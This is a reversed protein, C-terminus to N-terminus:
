GLGFRVRLWPWFRRRLTGELALATISAALAVGALLAPQSPPPWSGLTLLAFVSPAIFGLVRLASSAAAPWRPL